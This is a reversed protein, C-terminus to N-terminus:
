IGEKVGKEGMVAHAPMIGVGDNLKSIVRRHYAQDGVILAELEETDV